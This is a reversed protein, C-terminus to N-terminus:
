CDGGLLEAVRTARYDFIAELDHRVKFRQALTGLPGLPLAYRVIDRMFTGDRFPEFQHTHHWLAYPGKRQVDVFQTPPRWEVIETLWRIPFIRWRLRYAIEAGPRMVIPARTVIEFHLWPPTIAQLNAADAFFNFVEDIPRKIEQERELLYHNNM